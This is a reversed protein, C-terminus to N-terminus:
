TLAIPTVRDNPETFQHNTSNKTEVSRNTVINIPLRQVVDCMTQDHETFDVELTLDALLAM